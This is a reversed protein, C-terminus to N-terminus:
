QETRWAQRWGVKSGTQLLSRRYMREGVVLSVASFALLLAMSLLAQWWAADGELLRLPMLVASLPPVFSGVVQWTGELFLGGFFVGMTAMTLPASTSQLDESRASLAGAVAWLCALAVFGALFFVVFWVMPGSLEPVMTRYPSLFLGIVGIVLYVVIQGLALM